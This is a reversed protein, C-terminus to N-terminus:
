CITMHFLLWLAFGVGAVTLSAVDVAEIAPDGPVDMIPLWARPPIWFLGVFRVVGLVVLVISWVACFGSLHPTEDGMPHPWFSTLRLVLASGVLRAAHIRRQSATLTQM